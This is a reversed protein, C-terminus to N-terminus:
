RRLAYSGKVVMEGAGVFKCLATLNSQISSSLILKHELDLQSLEFRADGVSLENQLSGLVLAM